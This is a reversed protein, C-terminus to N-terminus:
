PTATQCKPCLGEAEVVTREIEFGAAAADAALAAGSPPAAIEAVVRCSRCIMFAPQHGERPTMCAVFANLKEIRHAVGLEVLFEIARYAVPPQSGFGEADLRKLVDYAGLANHSELLIELTRRRVPTFRAGRAKAMAEADELVRAVCGAHDHARMADKSDFSQDPM